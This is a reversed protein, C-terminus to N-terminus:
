KAKLSQLLKETIPHKLVTNITVPKEGHLIIGLVNSEGSDVDFRYEQYANHTSEYSIMYGCINDILIKETEGVRRYCMEEGESFFHKAGAKNQEAYIIIRFNTDTPHLEICNNYEDCCTNIYIDNPLCFSINGLYFRNDKYLFM